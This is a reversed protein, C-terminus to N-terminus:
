LNTTDDLLTTKSFYLGYIKLKHKEKYDQFVKINKVCSKDAKLGDMINCTNCLWQAKRKCFKCRQNTSLAVTECCYIFM